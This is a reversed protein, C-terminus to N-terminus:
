NVIRGWGRGKMGRAALQSLQFVVKLQIQMVSDWDEETYELVPARRVFGANNVLIDIPGAEAIVRAAAGPEALDAQITAGGGRAVTIVRAGAGALGETIAGGIGRTGGTVLATRGNLQFMEATNMPDETHM